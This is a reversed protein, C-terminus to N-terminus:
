TDNRRNIGTQTGLQFQGGPDVAQGQERGVRVIGGINGGVLGGLLGLHMHHKSLRKVGTGLVARRAGGAFHQHHKSGGIRSLRLASEPCRQAQQAVAM